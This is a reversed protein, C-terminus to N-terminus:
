GSQKVPAEEADVAAQSPSAEEEVYVTETKIPEGNDNFQITNGDQDVEVEVVVTQVKEADEPVEDVEVMVTQVKTNDEGAQITNGDQDVEIVVTELEIAEPNEPVAAQEVPYDGPLENGDEDIMRYRTEYKTEFSV